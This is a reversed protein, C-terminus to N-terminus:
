LAVNIKKMFQFGNKRKDWFHKVGMFTMGQDKNTLNREGGGCFCFWGHQCPLNAMWLKNLANFGLSFVFNPSPPLASERISLEGIQNKSDFGVTVPVKIYKDRM